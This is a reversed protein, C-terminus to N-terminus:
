RRGNRRPTLHRSLRRRVTSWPILRVKGEDIEKVRRSIEAAWAAEVGSDPAEDLSQLLSGAFAAREKASLRLAAKLLKRAEGSM